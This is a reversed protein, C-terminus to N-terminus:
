EIAQLAAELAYRVDHNTTRQLLNQLDAKASHADTGIRGLIAIIKYQYGGEDMPLSRLKKLLYPVAEKGIAALAEAAKDPLMYEYSTLSQIMYEIAKPHNSKINGLIVLTSEQIKQLVDKHEINRADLLKLLTPEIAKPRSGMKELLTIVRVREDWDNGELIAAAEPMTPITGPIPIGNRVCFNVRDEKQSNYKTLTAYESFKNRCLTVFGELDKKPFQRVTEKDANKTWEFARGFEYLAEATKEGAESQKFFESLWKLIVTKQNDDTENKYMSSLLSYVSAAAKGDLKLLPAYKQYGYMLLRNDSKTKLGDTMAFFAANFAIPTPLGIESARALNFYEDMRSQIEDLNEPLPSPNLLARIGIALRYNGTKKMAKLSVQWELRDVSGDKPLYKMIETAREDSGPFSITDLTNILFKHYPAPNIQYRQFAYMVDFHVAGCQLDFPIKVAETAITQIKSESSLDNLLIRLSRAKEKCRDLESENTNNATRNSNANEEPFLSELDATMKIRGSFGMLIEGTVVDLLRSNVDIYNKLKTYTGSLIVDIPLLEGVKKAQSQDILDTLNLDNERLIVDLRKREFLKFVKKTNNLASIASETLYEGFENKSDTSHGKTSIFTIVALRQPKNTKNTEVIEGAMRAVVVTFDAPEQNKKQARGSDSIFFVCFLVCVLKM